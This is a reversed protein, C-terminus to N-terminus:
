QNEREPHSIERGRHVALEFERVPGSVLAPGFDAIVAFPGPSGLRYKVLLTQANAICNALAM